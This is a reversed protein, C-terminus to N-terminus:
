WGLSAPEMGGKWWLRRVRFGKPTDAPLELPCCHAASVQTIITVPHHGQFPQQGTYMQLCSSPTSPLLHEHFFCSDPALRLMWHLLDSAAICITGKRCM